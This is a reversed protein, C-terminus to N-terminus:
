ANGWKEAQRDLDDLSPRATGCRKAAAPRTTERLALVWRLMEITRLNISTPEWGQLDHLYNRLMSEFQDETIDDYSQRSPFAEADGGKDNTGNLKRNIAEIMADIKDILDFVPSLVADCGIRMEGIIKRLQQFRSRARRLHWESM